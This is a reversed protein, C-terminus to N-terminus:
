LSVLYTNPAKDGLLHDLRLWNAVEGLRLDGANNSTQVVLYVKKAALIATHNEQVRRIEAQDLFEFM